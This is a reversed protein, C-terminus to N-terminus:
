ISLELQEGSDKAMKYLTTEMMKMNHSMKQIRSKTSQYFPLLEKVTGAMYYGAEGARSSSCVPFGAERLEAICLRLYRENMKTFKLLLTKKKIAAGKGIAWTKLYNLIDHAELSIESM